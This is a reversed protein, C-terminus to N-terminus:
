NNFLTMTPGIPGTGLRGSVGSSALAACSIILLIHRLRGACDIGVHYLDGADVTETPQGAHRGPAEISASPRSIPETRTRRSVANARM